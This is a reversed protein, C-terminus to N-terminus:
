IGLSYRTHITEKKSFIIQLMGTTKLLNLGTNFAEKRGKTWLKRWYNKENKTVTSRSRSVCGKGWEGRKHPCTKLLSIASFPSPSRARRMPCITLRTRQGHGNLSFFWNFCVVKAIRDFDSDEHLFMLNHEVATQVILCDITSSVTIGKKRCRYYILAANAYSEVQDKLFCIKQTDLYKKLDKFEHETRTGQLLEQYIFSNIGFPIDAHLISLFKDVGKTDDGRLFPIWVSTDVLVVIM